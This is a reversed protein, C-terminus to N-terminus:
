ESGDESKVGDESESKTDEESKIAAKMDSEEHGKVLFFDQEEPEKKIQIKKEPESENVLEESGNETVMNAKEETKKKASKKPKKNVPEKESSSGDDERKTAEKAELEEVGAKIRNFWRM